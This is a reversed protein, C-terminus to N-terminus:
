VLIVRPLPKLLIGYRIYHHELSGVSYSHAFRGEGAADVCSKLGELLPLPHILM